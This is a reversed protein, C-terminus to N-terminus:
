VGQDLSQTSAAFPSLWNDPDAFDPSWGIFFLPLKGAVLARVYQAWNRTRLNVKMLGTEELQTKIVRMVEATTTGYHQGAPHWLTFKFPKDESYGLSKLIKRSLGLNRMGYTKKFPESAYPYGPPVMHYAPVTHGEFVGEVLAERDIAAAVAQRKKKSWLPHHSLSKLATQGSGEKLNTVRPTASTPKSILDRSKM